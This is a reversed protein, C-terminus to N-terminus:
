PMNPKRKLTRANRKSKVINGEKNTIRFQSHNEGEGEKTELKTVIESIAFVEEQAGVGCGDQKKRWDVTRAKCSASSVAVRGEGIARITM